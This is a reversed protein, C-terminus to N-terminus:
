AATFRQLYQPREMGDLAARTARSINLAGNVDRNWLRNCTNCMLLGHVKRLQRESELKKRNPDLAWRFTACTAGETACHFCQKSTRFEDVLYVSYGKRRLLTRFGKGKTPEKFKRHKRQEWDGIGVVVEEPGGFARQFSHLMGQESKRTNVYRHMQLKRWIDQQYFPELKANLQLKAAVYEKFRGINATKRNHESLEETEWQTITRGDVITAAKETELIHTYRKLKLEYRRQNQTYRFHTGGDESTCYLLDSMGPDIGVVKKTQVVSRETTSVEDVYVERGGSERPRKRSERTGVLDRREQLVSCSIGDTRIMYHFDYHASTFPKANTRFFQQWIQDKYPGINSMLESKSWPEEHSETEQTRVTAVDSDTTGKTCKKPTEYLLSILVKTDITIHKPVIATRLPCFSRLRKDMTELQQTMRLMCPWYDQPACQLDYAISDKAFKAKEPRVIHRTTGIWSHYVPHSRLPANSVDLLDTKLNRLTIALKREATDKQAKTCLRKRIIGILEQRRWAANVYSEVYEVYHQKINTEFVTVVQTATYQIINCLQSYSPTSDGPPLLPVMHDIYFQALTSKLQANAANKRVRTEATAVTTLLLQALTTDVVTQPNYLLYLKLLLMARTTMKHARFVTQQLITM